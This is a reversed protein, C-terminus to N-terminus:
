VPRRARSRVKIVSQLEVANAEAAARTNYVQPLSLHAFQLLSWRILFKTPPPHTPAAGCGFPFSLVSVESGHCDRWRAATGGRVEAKLKVIQAELKDVVAAHKAAEDLMKAKKDSDEQQKHQLSTLERSVETLKASLSHMQDKAQAAESVLLPNQPTRGRLVSPFPTYFLPLPLSLMEPAMEHRAMLLLLSRIPHRKPSVAVCLLGARGGGGGGFRRDPISGVKARLEALESRASYLAADFEAKARFVENAARPRAPLCVLHCPNLTFPTHPPSASPSSLLFSPLLMGRLSPLARAFLLPRPHTLPPLMFRAM